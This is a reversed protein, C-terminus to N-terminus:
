QCFSQDSGISYNLLAYLSWNLCKSIRWLSDCEIMEALNEMMTSQKSSLPWVCWDFMCDWCSAPLILQCCALLMLVDYIQRSYYWWARLLEATSAVSVSQSHLQSNFSQYRNTGSVVCEFTIDFLRNQAQGYSSQVARARPRFFVYVNTDYTALPRVNNDAVCRYMGGDEPKVNYLTLVNGQLWVCCCSM